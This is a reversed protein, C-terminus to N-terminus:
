SDNNGTRSALQCSQAIVVKFPLFFVAVSLYLFDNNGNFLAKKWWKENMSSWHGPKKKERRGFEITDLWWLKTVWRRFTILGIMARNQASNDFSSSHKPASALVILITNLRFRSDILSFWWRWGSGLRIAFSSFSWLDDDDRTIADGCYTIMVEVWTQWTTVRATTIWTSRIRIPWRQIVRSKLFFVPTSHFATENKRNIICIWFEVLRSIICVTTESKGLLLLKM